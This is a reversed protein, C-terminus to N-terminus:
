ADTLHQEPAPAHNSFFNGEFSAHSLLIIFPDGPIGSRYGAIYDHCHFIKAHAPKVLPPRRSLVTSFSFLHRAGNCIIGPM